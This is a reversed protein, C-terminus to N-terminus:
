SELVPRYACNCVDSNNDVAVSLLTELYKNHIWDDSDIFTIWESDSNNFAWDIGM